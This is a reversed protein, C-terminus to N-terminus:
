PKPRRSLGAALGAVLGAVAALAWGPFRRPGGPGASGPLSIRPLMARAERRLLGLDSAIQERLREARARREDTM